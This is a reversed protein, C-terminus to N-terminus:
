GHARGGHGFRARRITTTEGIFLSRKSRKPPERDIEAHAVDIRAQIRAAIAPDITPTM